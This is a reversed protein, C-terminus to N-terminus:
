VGSRKWWYRGAHVPSSDQVEEGDQLSTVLTGTEEFCYGIQEYVFAFTEVHGKRMFAVPIAVLQNFTADLVTVIGEDRWFRAALRYTM